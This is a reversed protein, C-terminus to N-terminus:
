SLLWQQYLIQYTQTCDSCKKLKNFPHNWNRCSSHTWIWLWVLRFYIFIHTCQQRISWLMIKFILSTSPSFGNIFSYRLSTTSLSFTFSLSIIVSSLNVPMGPWSKWLQKITMKYQQWCSHYQWIQVMSYVLHIMIVISFVIPYLLPPHFLFFPLIIVLLFLATHHFFFLLDKRHFQYPNIPHIWHPSNSYSPPITPCFLELPQIPSPCTTHLAPSPTRWQFSAIWQYPSLVTPSIRIPPKELELASKEPKIKPSFDLNQTLLHELRIQQMTPTPYEM